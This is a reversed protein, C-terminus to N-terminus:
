SEDPHWWPNPERAEEQLKPGRTGSRLVGQEADKADKRDKGQSQGGGGTTRAAKPGLRAQGDLPAAM